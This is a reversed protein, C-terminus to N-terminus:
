SWPEGDSITKFATAIEEEDLGLGIRKTHKWSLRVSDNALIQVSVLPRRDTFIIGEARRAFFEQMPLKEKLIGLLGRTLIERKVQAGNKDRNLYFTVEGGGPLACKQPKYSAPGLKLSLLFQNVRSKATDVPGSFRLDFKSGVELGGLVFADDGINAEGAM